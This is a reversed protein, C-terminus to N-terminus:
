MVVSMVLGVVGAVVIELTQDRWIVSAVLTGLGEKVVRLCMRESKFM